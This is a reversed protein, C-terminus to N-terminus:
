TAMSTRLGLEDEFRQIAARQRERADQEGLPPPPNKAIHEWYASSVDKMLVSTPERGTAKLYGHGRSATVALDILALNEWTRELAGHRLCLREVEARVWADHDTVSARREM